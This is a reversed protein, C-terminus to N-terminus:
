FSSYVVFDDFLEDSMGDFIKVISSSQLKNVNSDGTKHDIIWAKVPKVLSQHFSNINLPL